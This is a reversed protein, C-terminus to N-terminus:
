SPLEQESRPEGLGNAIQVATAIARAFGHPNDYMMLHGADPVILRRVGFGDLRDGAEGSAPKEDAELTRSGVIFARPLDLRVLEERLTPSREGTLSRATRHTALPSSLAIM